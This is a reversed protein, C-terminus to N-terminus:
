KETRILCREFYSKYGDIVRQDNILGESTPKWSRRDKTFRLARFSKYDKKIYGLRELSWIRHEIASQSVGFHRGAERYTPFYRHKESFEWFYELTEVLLPTLAKWQTQRHERNMLRTKGVPNQKPSKTKMTQNDQFTTRGTM